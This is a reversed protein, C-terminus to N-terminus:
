RNARAAQAIAAADFPKAPEGGQGPILAPEPRVTPKPDPDGGKDGKDAEAGKPASPQGVKSLREAKANIADEDDGVLFEVLDEDIGYKRVAREVYLERQAASLAKTHEETAAAIKADADEAKAKFEDRESEAASQAEQAEVTAVKLSKVEERLTVITQWARAADFEDGWPPTTGENPKAGDPGDIMRIGMLALRSPATPGFVPAPKRDTM